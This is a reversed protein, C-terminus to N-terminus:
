RRRKVAVAALLEQTSIGEAINRLTRRVTEATNPHGKDKRGKHVSLRLEGDLVCEVIASELSEAVPWFDLALQIKGCAESLPVRAAADPGGAGVLVERAGPRVEVDISHLTKLKFMNRHTGSQLPEMVPTFVLGDSEYPPRLAKALDSLEFVEKVRLATHRSADIIRVRESVESARRLRELYSLSKVDEGRCAIADFILFTGDSMQECDLATGAYVSAPAASRVLRVKLSRDLTVAVHGIAITTFFLVYRVGDAKAAVVYHAKKLEPINRREISVPLPVPNRGEHPALGWHGHYKDLIEQEDCASLKM